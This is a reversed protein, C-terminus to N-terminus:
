AIIIERCDLKNLGKICHSGWCVLRDIHMPTTCRRWRYPLGVQAHVWALALQGPTCGKKEALEKVSDVLALNSEFAEKQYRPWQSRRDNERTCETFRLDQGRCHQKM